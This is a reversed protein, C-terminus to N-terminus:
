ELLVYAHYIKENLPCQFISILPVELNMIYPKRPIRCYIYQTVFVDIRIVEQQFPIVLM